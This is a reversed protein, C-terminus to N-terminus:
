FTRKKLYIRYQVIDFYLIISISIILFIFIFPHNQVKEKLFFSTLNVTKRNYKGVFNHTTVTLKDNELNNDGKTILSINGNKDKSVQVVRHIVKVTGTTSALFAGYEDVYNYVIIDDEKITEIDVKDYIIGTGSKITPEMSASLVTTIGKSNSNEYIMPIIYAFTLIITLILLLINIIGLFLYKWIKTKKDTEKILEIIANGEDIDRSGNLLELLTINLEKSLPILFAIDPMGRGNEWKSIARDTVGIREALELQTMQKEMRLDKIFRGIKEQNM